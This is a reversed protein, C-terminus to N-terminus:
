FQSSNQIDPVNQNFGLFDLNFDGLVIYEKGTELAKEWQELFGKWRKLQESVDLSSHNNQGLYQWDRYINCVLFRKKGPFGVELWISSFEDNM